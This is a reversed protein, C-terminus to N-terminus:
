SLAARPQRGTTLAVTIVADRLASARMDRYLRMFQAHLISPSDASRFAYFGGMARVADSVLPHLPRREAIPVDGRSLHRQVQALAEHDAPLNLVHEAAAERIASVSPFRRSTCILARVAEALVAPPIDVTMKLYLQGTEAPIRDLPFAAILDAILDRHDSM